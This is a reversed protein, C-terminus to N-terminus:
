LYFSHLAAAIVSLYASLLCTKQPSLAGCFFAMNPQRFIVCDLLLTFKQALLHPIFWLPVTELLLFALIIGEASELLHPLPPDKFSGHFYEMFYIFDINPRRGFGSPVLAMNCSDLDIAAMETEGGDWNKLRLPSLSLVSLIFLFPIPSFFSLTEQGM